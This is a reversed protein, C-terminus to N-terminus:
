QPTNPQRRTRSIDRRTLINADTVRAAALASCYILTYLSDLTSVDLVYDPLESNLTHLVIALKKSPSMKTLQPRRLPNTGDYELLARRLERIKNDRLEANDEQNQENQVDQM